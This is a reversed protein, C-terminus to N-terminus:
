DNTFAVRVGGTIRTIFNFAVAWLFGLATGCVLNVVVQLLTFILVTPFSALDTLGMFDVGVIDRVIGNITDIVGLVMMLLWALINFVALIVSLMISIVFSNKTASWLDIHVLRLRVQKATSAKAM